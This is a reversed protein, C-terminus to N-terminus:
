SSLAHYAARTNFPSGNLIYRKDQRSCLSVVQLLANLALLEHSTNITLRNHLGLEVGDQVIHNFMVNPQTHHSYLTPFIAALPKPQLWRDLWFFSEQGSGVECQAIQRLKDLSKHITGALYSANKGHSVTLPCHHVLWEKWLLTPSLLFKYAFKLILCFNQIYINIIGLGRCRQSDVPSPMSSQPM